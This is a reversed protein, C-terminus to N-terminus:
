KSFIVRTKYRKEAIVSSFKIIYEFYDDFFYSLLQFPTKQLLSIEMNYGLPNDFDIEEFKSFESEKSM